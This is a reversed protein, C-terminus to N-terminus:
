TIGLISYVRQVGEYEFKEIRALLKILIMLREQLSLQDLVDFFLISRDIENDEFKRSAEITELSLHQPFVHNLEEFFKKKSLYTLRNGYVSVMNFWQNYIVHWHKELNALIMRDNEFEIIRKYEVRNMIAICTPNEPFEVAYEYADLDNKRRILELILSEFNENEIEYIKGFHMLYLNELSELHLSIDEAAAADRLFENEFENLAHGILLDDGKVPKEKHITKIIKDWKKEFILMFLEQQDIM